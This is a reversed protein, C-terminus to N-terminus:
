YVTVKDAGFYHVSNKEGHAAIVRQTGTIRKSIALKQFDSLIIWSARSLMFDVTLKEEQLEELKMHPNALIRSLTKLFLREIDEIRPQFWKEFDVRGPPTELAREYFVRPPRRSPDVIRKLFGHTELSKLEKSLTTPSMHLKKMASVRMEALPVRSGDAAMLSLIRDSATVDHTTPRAM